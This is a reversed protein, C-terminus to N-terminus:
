RRPARADRLVERIDGLRHTPRSGPPVAQTRPIMGLRAYRFISAKSVGFLGAVEITSLRADDPLTNIDKPQM